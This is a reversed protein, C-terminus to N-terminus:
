AKSEFRFAQFDKLEKRLANVSEKKAALITELQSVYQHSDRLETQEMDQVLEMEEKMVQMM